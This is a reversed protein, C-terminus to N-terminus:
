YWEGCGSVHGVPCGSGRTQGERFILTDLPRHRRIWECYAQEYRIAYHKVRLAERVQDM